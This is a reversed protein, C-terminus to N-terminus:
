PLLLIPTPVSIVSLWQSLLQGLIEQQARVFYEDHPFEGVAEAVIKNAALPKGDALYKEYSRAFLRRANATLREDQPAIMRAEALLALAQAHEGSESCTVAWNNYAAALNDRALANAPDLELVARAASIATPYNGLQLEVVSRNYHLLAILGERDLERPQPSAVSEGHIAEGARWLDSTTEVDFPGDNAEIRCWVHGTILMAHSEIGCHAALCHFLLTAGVCNFEGRDFARRPDHCAADYGGTFLRRHLYQLIAQAQQRTSQGRDLTANLEDALRRFQALYREVRAGDTEGSALIARRLTDLAYQSPQRQRPRAVHDRQFGSPLTADHAMSGSLLVTAVLCLAAVITRRVASASGTAGWPECQLKLRACM